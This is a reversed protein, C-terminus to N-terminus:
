HKLKKWKDIEKKEKESFDGKVIEWDFRESLYKVLLELFKEKDFKEHIEKLGIVIDSMKKIEGKKQMKQTNKKYIKEMLQHDMSFTIPFAFYNWGKLECNFTGCFKKYKGNHEILLDNGKLIPNFNKDNIQKRLSKVISSLIGKIIEKVPIGKPIHLDIKVTDKFYCIVGAEIKKPVPVRIINIDKPIKDVYLYKEPKYNGTLMLFTNEPFGCFLTPNEYEIEHDAIFTEPSIKNNKILRIKM